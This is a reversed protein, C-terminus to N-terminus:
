IRSKIMPQIFRRSLQVLIYGLLAGSLSYILSHTFGQSGLLWHFIDDQTFGIDPHMKYFSKMRTLNDLISVILGILFLSIILVRGFFDRMITRIVLPALSSFIFIPIIAAIMFFAMYGADGFFFEDVAILLAFTYLYILSSSCLSKKISSNYVFTSVFIMPLMVFGVFGEAEPTSWISRTIFPTLTLGGFSVLWFWRHEFLFGRITGM